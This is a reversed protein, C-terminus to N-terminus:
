TLPQALVGVINTGSCCGLGQAVRPDREVDGDRRGTACERVSFNREAGQSSGAPGSHCVRAWGRRPSIAWVRWAGTERTNREFPTIGCSMAAQWLGTERADGPDDGWVNNNTTYLQIYIFKVADSLRARVGRAQTNQRPVQQQAAISALREPFLSRPM